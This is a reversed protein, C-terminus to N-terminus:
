KGHIISLVTGNRRCLRIIAVGGLMARPLSGAVTWVGDQLTAVLPFEARIKQAGYVEGLYANAISKAVAGSPIVGGAPAYLAVTTKCEVPEAQAVQPLMMMAAWLLTKM